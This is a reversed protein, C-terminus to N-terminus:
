LLCLKGAITLRDMFKILNISFLLSMCIFNQTLIKTKHNQKSDITEILCNSSSSIPMNQTIDIHVPVKQSM